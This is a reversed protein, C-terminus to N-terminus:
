RSNTCWTPAPGPPFVARSKTCLFRLFLPYRSKTCWTRPRAQLFFRGPSPAFSVSSCPDAPIRAGLGRGRKSSFDGPVQHLPFPPVLTLPFEHVLDAGAGSSFGGPVQHLPFPSVLHLPIEHVLDETASPPFIARVQHLPFSPGLHLPIEHVLDAGWSPRRGLEAPPGDSRRLSWRGRGSAPWQRM